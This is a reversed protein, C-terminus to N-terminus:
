AACTRRPELVAPRLASVPPLAAKLYAMGLAFGQFTLRMKLADVLGQQHMATVARRVDTRRVEITKSLEQLDITRGRRQARALERLIYPAISQTTIM